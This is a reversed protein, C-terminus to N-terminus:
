GNSNGKVCVSFQIAARGSDKNEPIWEIGNNFNKMGLYNSSEKIAANMKRSLRFAIGELIECSPTQITTESEGPLEAVLEEFEDASLKESGCCLLMEVVSGKIGVIDEGIEKAERSLHYLMEYKKMAPEDANELENYLREKIEDPEGYQGYIAQLTCECIWKITGKRDNM